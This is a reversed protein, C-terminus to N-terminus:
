VHARGIQAGDLDAGSDFYGSPQGHNSNNDVSASNAASSNEDFNLIGTGNLAIHEGCGLLLNTYDPTGNTWADYKLQVEIGADGVNTLSLYKASRLSDGAISDAFKFVELPTNSNDVVKVEDYVERSRKQKRAM